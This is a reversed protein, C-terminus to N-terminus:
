LPLGRRAVDSVFDFARSIDGLEQGLNYETIWPIGEVESMSYCFVEGLRKHSIAFEFESSGDVTITCTAEGRTMTYTTM